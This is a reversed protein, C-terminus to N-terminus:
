PSTVASAEVCYGTQEGPTRMTDLLRNCVPYSPDVTPDYPPCTGNAEVTPHVCHYSGRCDGDVNCTSVCFRRAL